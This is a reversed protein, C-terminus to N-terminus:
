NGTALVRRLAGPETEGALRAKEQQGKFSIVTSQSRVSMQRRLDRANDYDVILLTGPVSADGKWGNFVKQQARCTPCWDAHFHLSVGANEQQLRAFREPSYTEIELAQVLSSLALLALAISLHRTM